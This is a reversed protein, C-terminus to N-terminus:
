PLVTFEQNHIYDVTKEESKWSGDRKNIIIEKGGEARTRAATFLLKHQGASLGQVDFEITTVIANSTDSQSMDRYLNFGVSYGEVTVGSIIQSGYSIDDQFPRAPTRLANPNQECSMEFSVTFPQGAHIDAPLHVGEVYPLAITIPDIIIGPEPGATLTGNGCGQSLLTGGIITSLLFLHVYLMQQKM